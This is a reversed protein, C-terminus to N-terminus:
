AAIAKRIEALVALVDDALADGRVRNAYRRWADPNLGTRRCAADVDWGKATLRETREIPDPTRSRIPPPPTTGVHACVAERVIDSLTIDRRRVEARLRRMTEYDLHASVHDAPGIEPTNLTAM